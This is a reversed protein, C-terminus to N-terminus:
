TEVFRSSMLEDVHARQSKTEGQDIEQLLVALVEIPPKLGLANARKWRKLRAIGICPGYQGSMDWERLVKEHLSLGEQHVRPASREAEKAQWYSHIQKSSLKRATQAEDGAWGATSDSEAADLSSNRARGGLVDVASSVSSVEQSHPNLNPSLAFAKEHAQDDIATQATTTKSPLQDDELHGNGRNPKSSDDRLILDELVSSKKKATLSKERQAATSKTIRNQKAGHFSLTSQQPANANRANVSQRKPPM